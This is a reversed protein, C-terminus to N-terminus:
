RRRVVVLLEGGDLARFPLANLGLIVLNIGLAWALISGAALAAGMRVIGFDVVLPAALSVAALTVFRRIV